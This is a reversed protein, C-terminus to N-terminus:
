EGSVPIASCSLTDQINCLQRLLVATRAPEDRRSFLDAAIGCAYGRGDLCARTQALMVLAAAHSVGPHQEYIRALDACAAADYNDCGRMYLIGAYAPDEPEVLRAARSCHRNKGERCEHEEYVLHAFHTRAAAHAALVALIVGLSAAGRRVARSLALMAEEPSGQVLAVARDRGRYASASRALRALLGDGLGLDITPAGPDIAATGRDALGPELARRARRIARADAVLVVGVAVAAGIAMALAAVPMAVDGGAAAPWDVVGETTAVALTVALIGWVARRDSGAVISGLRARQARRAAALVLLCVPVFPIACLYGMVAGALPGSYADDLVLGAVAGTVTGAVLVAVTHLWVNDTAPRADPDPEEIEYRYRRGICLRTLLAGTLAALVM